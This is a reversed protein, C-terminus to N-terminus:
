SIGSLQQGFMVMPSICNHLMVHKGHKVENYVVSCPALGPGDQCGLLDSLCLM